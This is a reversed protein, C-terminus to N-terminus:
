RGTAALDAYSILEIRNDAIARAARADCLADLERRRSALLRTQAADLGDSEGPHTMLETVGPPLGAAVAEILAVDVLGTHAVGLTGTTGLREGGVSGSRAALINLARSLWRASLPAPPASPPLREGHRRVFAIDYRRCLEVVMRFVPPWGHVHRHSDAHTPRLSHDLCWAVQAEMEAQIASLYRGPRAACRAILAAAGWVMVGGEGALVARGRLSLAPGQCVNLHVGVGLTDRGYPCHTDRADRGHRDADRGLVEVPPVGTPCVPLIAGRLTGEPTSRWLGLAEAAAPMNAALTTSTVIGEAWARIIGRSVGSSWGFDDANVILRRAAGAAEGTM